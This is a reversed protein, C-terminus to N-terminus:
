RKIRRESSLPFAQKRRFLIISEARLLMSPYSLPNFGVGGQLTANSFNRLRPIYAVPYRGYAVGRARCAAGEFGYAADGFRYAPGGRSCALAKVSCPWDKVRCAADTRSYTSAKLRCTLPKLRYALAELSYVSATCVYAADRRNGAVAERRFATAKLGGPWVVCRFAM